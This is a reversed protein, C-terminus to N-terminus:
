FIDEPRVEAPADISDPRVSPLEYPPGASKAAKADEVTRGVGQCRKLRGPRGRGHKYMTGDSKLRVRALCFPCQGRDPTASM